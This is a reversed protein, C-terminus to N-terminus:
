INLHEEIMICYKKSIKNLKIQARYLSGICKSAHNPEIGSSNIKWCTSQHARETEIDIIKM